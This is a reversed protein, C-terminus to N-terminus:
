EAGGVIRAPRDPFHRWVSSRGSFIDVAHLEINDPTSGPIGAALSGALKELEYALWRLSREPVCVGGLVFYEENSNNPSGSDDLYLIHIL